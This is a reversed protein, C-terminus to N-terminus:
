KQCKKNGSQNKDFLAKAASLAVDTTDGSSILAIKEIREKEDLKKITTQTTSKEQIKEVYYHHHACAAVQALHTVSFVQATKSLECMKHGIATATAGSVGTDIEDFIVTQIGQLHTFITKLGLMLRSLEGGSAVKSLSKLDEGPNMSILFEVDDIGTIHPEELQKFQTSFQAYPLDLDKLNQIILKDLQKASEKRQSSLENAISLYNKMAEEKENILSDIVEQRHSFLNIKERFEEAKDLVNQITPGYKRKFKQLVYLREEISNIDIDDHELLSCYNKLEDFSESLEFYFSNLKELLSSTMETPELSEALKKVEYVPNEIDNDFLQIMQHYKELNKSYSQYQKEQNLLTEEEDVSLDAQDIENLQYTYFELDDQNFEENEAKELNLKKEKYVLFAQHCKEKLQPKNIFHDLLNLHSGKNLLYQHDHQSHIDIEDKLCHKLLSLTVVRYNIKVISKGDSRIERSIVVDEKCDFGENELLEKAKSSSLDFVGEVISSTTGKKIMSLSARDSTLLGLADILISKGAGTEGTFASFGSEFNLHIEDILIFNKIYLHKLM